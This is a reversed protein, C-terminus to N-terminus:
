YKYVNKYKAEESLGNKFNALVKKNRKKGFRRVIYGSIKVNNMEYYIKQGILMEAEYEDIIDVIMQRDNVNRRSRRKSSFRGLLTDRKIEVRPEEKGKKSSYIKPKDSVNSSILEKAKYYDVFREAKKEAKSKKVQQQVVKENKEKKIPKPVKVKKGSKVAKIPKPPLPIERTIREAARLMEQRQRRAEREEDTLEKSKVSWTTDEKDADGKLDKISIKEVKSSIQIGRKKKTPIGQSIPSAMHTQRVGDEYIDDYEKKAPKKAAKKAPKKTAKKAFNLDISKIAKDVVGAIKTADIKNKAYTSFLKKLESKSYSEAANKIHDGKIIDEEPFIDNGTPISVGADLVGKLGSYIRSGRTNSQLGIDLIADNIGMDKARKGALYGTLYASPINNGNLKWGFNKLGYSSADVLTIDGDPLANVFQVRMHKTSRRIVLRTKSSKLMERRAYYNTKGERRRRLKVRYRPGDAM